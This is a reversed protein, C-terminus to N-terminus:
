AHGASLGLFLFPSLFLPLIFITFFVLLINPFILNHFPDKHSSLSTSFTIFERYLGCKKERILVKGKIYDKKRYKELIEEDNRCQLQMGVSNTDNINTWNELKKFRSSNIQLLVKDYYILVLTEKICAYKSNQCIKDSTIHM